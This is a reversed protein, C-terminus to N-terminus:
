PFGFPCKKERKKKCTHSHRHMQLSVLDSLEVNEEYEPVNCTIFRDIYACVDEESDRGYQPANDCWIMIHVHPSGRQQFEIRSLYDIVEGLTKCQLLIDKFFTSVSYDFHRACTIPDTQILRCKEDWPM